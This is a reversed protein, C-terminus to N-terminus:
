KEEGIMRLINEALARLNTATTFVQIQSHVDLDRLTFIYEKSVHRALLCMLFLSM